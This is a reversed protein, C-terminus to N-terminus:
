SEERRLSRPFAPFVSFALSRSLSHPLQQESARMAPLSERQYARIKHIINSNVQAENGSRSPQDDSFRKIEMHANSILKRIYSRSCICERIKTKCSAIQLLQQFQQNLTRPLRKHLDFILNEKPFEQAPTRTPIKKENIILKM